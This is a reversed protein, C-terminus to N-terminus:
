LYENIDIFRIESDFESIVLQMYDLATKLYKNYEANDKNYARNECYVTFVEDYYERILDENCDEISNVALEDILTNMDEHLEINFYDESYQEYEAINNLVSELNNIIESNM